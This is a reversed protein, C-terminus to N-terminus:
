HIDAASVYRHLVRELASLVLVVGCFRGVFVFEGLGLRDLLWPTAWWVIAALAVAIATLMPPRATM